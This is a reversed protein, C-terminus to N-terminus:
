GPEHSDFHNAILGALEDLVAEAEPGCAELLLEEGQAAGLAAMQLVDMANARQDGKVLEVEAGRGKVRERITTAARLHLGEPNALVVTRTFRTDSM